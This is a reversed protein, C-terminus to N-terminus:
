SGAIALNAVALNAIATTLPYVALGAGACDAAGIDAKGIGKPYVCYLEIFVPAPEPATFPVPPGEQPARIFDLSHRTEYDDKCVIMGDWRKLVEDSKFKGGCLACTVNWTGAKYYTTM